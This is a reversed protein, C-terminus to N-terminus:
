SPVQTVQQSASHVLLLVDTQSELDINARSSIPLIGQFNPSQQINAAVDYGVVLKSPPNHANSRALFGQGPSKANTVSLRLAELHRQSDNNIVALIYTNRARSLFNCGINLAPAIRLFCSPTFFSSSLAQVNLVSLSSERNGPLFSVKFYCSLTTGRAFISFGTADCSCILSQGGSQTDHKEWKAPTPPPLSPDFHKRQGRDAM